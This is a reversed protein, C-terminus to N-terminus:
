ISSFNSDNNELNWDVVTFEGNENKIQIKTYKKITEGQDKSLM